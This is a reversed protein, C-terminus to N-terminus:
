SLKKLMSGTVWKPPSDPFEFYDVLYLTKKGKKKTKLIKIKYYGSDHAPVLEQHYFSGEIVESGKDIPSVTYTIPHTKKIDVIRFLETTNLIHSARQGFVRSSLKLRVVINLPYPNRVPKIKSYKKKYLKTAFHKIDSWNSLLHVNLPAEGNLGSHEKLNYAFTLNHIAPVIDESNFHTVFKVLKRKLSKIFRECISTKHPSPNTYWHLKHKKYLDQMKKSVFEVGKDSLIKEYKYINDSIFREFMPTVTEARLNKLLIVSALRSFGDLIVLGYPQQIKPSIPKLFMVDMVLTLGPRRFIMSRRSFKHPNEKYLTYSEQKQLFNAVEKKDIDPNIQLAYKHLDSASSLGAPTDINKYLTNLLKENSNM